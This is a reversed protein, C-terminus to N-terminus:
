SNGNTLHKARQAELKIREKAIQEVIPNAIALISQNFCTGALVRYIYSDAFSLGAETLAQKIRPFATGQDRSIKNPGRGRRKILEQEMKEDSKM